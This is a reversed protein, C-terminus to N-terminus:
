KSIMLSKSNGRIYNLFFDLRFFIATNWTLFMLQSFSFSLFLFNNEWYMPGVFKFNPPLNWFYRHLYRYFYDRQLFQSLALISPPARAFIHGSMVYAIINNLGDFVSSKFPMVIKKGLPCCDVTPVVLWSHQHSSAIHACRVGAFSFGVWLRIVLFLEALYYNTIHTNYNDHFGFSM